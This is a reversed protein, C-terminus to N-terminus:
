KVEGHETLSRWLRAVEDTSRYYVDYIRSKNIKLEAIYKDVRKCNAEEYAKILNLLTGGIGDSYILANEVTESLNMKSLEIDISRGTLIDLTSFLGIMYADGITIGKIGSEKVIQECFVARHYSTQLLEEPVNQNNAFELLLIWKKLNSMGVRVVADDISKIRNLAGFYVSNALRIIQASMLSDRAIIKGISHADSTDENIKAIIEIFNVKLHDSRDIEINSPHSIYTGEYYDIGSKEALVYDDATNVNSALKKCTFENRDNFVKEPLANIDFKVIDAFIKALTFVKDEKNIAIVVKYGAEKIKKIIAVKEPIALITSNIQILVSDKNLIMINQFTAETLNNEKIELIFPVGAIEDDPDYRQVISAILQQLTDVDGDDSYIIDNAFLKRNIGRVQQRTVYSGM